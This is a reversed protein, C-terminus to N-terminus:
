PAVTRDLYVNLEERRLQVLWLQSDAETAYCRLARELLGELGQFLNWGLVHSEAFGYEEGHDSGQSTTRSGVSWPVRVDPFHQWSLVRGQHDSCINRFRTGDPSKSPSHRHIANLSLPNKENMEGLM